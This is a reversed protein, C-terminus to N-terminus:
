GELYNKDLTDFPEYLFDVMFGQANKGLNVYKKYWGDSLANFNPVFYKM